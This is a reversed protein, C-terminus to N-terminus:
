TIRRDIYPEIIYRNIDKFRLVKGDFGEDTKNRELVVFSGWKEENLIFLAHEWTPIDCNYNELLEAVPKPMMIKIDSKSLIILEERSTSIESKCIDIVNHIVGCNNCQALKPEVTDSDDVVSFVVFEHSPPNPKTRFQPLVCLCRINHKIGKPM